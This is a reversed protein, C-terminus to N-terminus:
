RENPKAGIDYVAVAADACLKVGMRSGDYGWRPRRVKGKDDELDDTRYRNNASIPLFQDASVLTGVLRGNVYFKVDIAPPAPPKYTLRQQQDAYLDGYAKVPARQLAERPITEITVVDGVKIFVHGDAGRLVPQENTTTATLQAACPLSTGVRWTLGIWPTEADFAVDTSTIGFTCAPMSSASEAPLQLIQISCRHVSYGSLATRTLAVSHGLGAGKVATLHMPVDFLQMGGPTTTGRTGTETACDASDARAIPSQILTRRPSGGHAVAPDYMPQGRTVPPEELGINNSAVTVRSVLVNCLLESDWHRHYRTSSLVNQYIADVLADDDSSVMGTRADTLNRNVLPVLTLLQRLEALKRMSDPSLGVFQHGARVLEAVLTVNLSTM